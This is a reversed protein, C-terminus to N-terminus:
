YNVRQCSNHVDRTRFALISNSDIFRNDALFNAAFFALMHEHHLGRFSRPFRRRRRWGFGFRSSYGRWRRFGLLFFGGRRIISGDGQSGGIGIVIFVGVGQNLRVIGCGSAGETSLFHIRGIGDDTDVTAVVSSGADALLGHGDLLDRRTINKHM